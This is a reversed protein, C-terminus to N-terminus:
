KPRKFDFIIENVEFILRQLGPLTNFRQEAIQRLEREPINRQLKIVATEAKRASEGINNIINRRTNRGADSTVKLEIYEEGALVDANKGTNWYKEFYRKRLEVESREVKTPLFKFDRYGAGILVPVFTENIQSFEDLANYHVLFDVDGYKRKLYAIDDPAMLTGNAPVHAPVDTYYPHRDTVIKGTVAPNGELGRAAPVTVPLFESVPDATQRWSCKCNYLNGPQNEIWFPHEVPLTLGVFSLHLERPVLSVTLLWTINPLNHARERFREFQQASRARAVFTNYEAVQHRNYTKIVKEALPKYEKWSRVVGNEDARLRDLDATVRYAKAAALRSLNLKFLQAQEGGGAGFVATVADHYNHSYIDFLSGNIENSKGAFIDRVANSVLTRRNAATLQAVPFVTLQRRV